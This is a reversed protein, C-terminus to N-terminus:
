ARLQKEMRYRDFRGERFARKVAFGSREYLALAHRNDTETTLEISRYGASRSAETFAGLLARGIGAGQAAPAVAIYTLENAREPLAQRSSHFASFLVQLFVAPRRAVLQGMQKLFWARPRQMRANLAYPDPSGVAWGLVERASSVACFGIVSPASRALEYYRLIIPYGLDTLLNHMVARHLAAVRELAADDLESFPRLSYEM